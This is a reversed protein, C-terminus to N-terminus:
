GAAVKSTSVSIRSRLLCTAQNYLKADQHARATLQAGDVLALCANAEDVPNGINAISGDRLGLEFTDALWDINTKHFLALDDAIEAHLNPLDINLAISLCISEGEEILARTEAIYAMLRDGGCNEASATQELFSFIRKSFRRFIAAILDSKSAFHYYISPKKIGVDRAIQDLSFGSYGRKRVANEAANMIAMKTTITAASTM